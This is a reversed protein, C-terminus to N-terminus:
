SGFIAREIVPFADAIRFGRGDPDAEDNATFYIFAITIRVVSEALTAPHGIVALGADRLREFYAALTAASDNKLLSREIHAKSKSRDAITYSWRLARQRLLMELLTELWGFIRKSEQERTGIPGDLSLSGLTRDALYSLAATFAGKRDPFYRYFTAQSIGAHRAIVAVTVRSADRGEMLDATAIVIKERTSGDTKPEVIGDEGVRGLYNWRTRMRGTEPDRQGDVYYRYERGKIRKTVEYPM